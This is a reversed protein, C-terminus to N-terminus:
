IKVGRTTFSLGQQGVTSIMVAEFFPEHIAPDIAWDFLFNGGTGGEDDTEDIVIEITELPAILVPKAFYTRILKGETNFYDARRIYVPDKKNINRISVMVTLNHTRKQHLSYVESYVSLYSSGYELSDSASLEVQRKEWNIPNISSMEPKKNCAGLSLLVATLGVLHLRKM